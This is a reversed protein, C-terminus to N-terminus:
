WFAKMDINHTTKAHSLLGRFTGLKKGCTECKFHRAVQHSILTNEDDFERDCYYCWIYEKESQKKKRGMGFCSQSNGTQNFKFPHLSVSHFSTFPTTESFQHSTQSLLISRLPLITYNFPISYLWTNFPQQSNTPQSLERIGPIIIPLTSQHPLYSSHSLSQFHTNTTNTSHSLQTLLLQLLHLRTLRVQMRLTSTTKHLM